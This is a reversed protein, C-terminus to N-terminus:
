VVVGFVHRARVRNKNDILLIIYRLGARSVRRFIREVKRWEGPPIVQYCGNPSCADRLDGSYFTTVEGPTRVARRLKRHFKCLFIYRWM